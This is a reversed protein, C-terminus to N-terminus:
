TLIAHGLCSTVRKLWKQFPVWVATLNKSMHLEFFPNNLHKLYTAHNRAGMMIIKILYASFKQIVVNLQLIFLTVIGYLILLM